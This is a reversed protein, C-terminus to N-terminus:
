FVSCGMRCRRPLVFGPLVFSRSWYAFVATTGTATEANSFELVQLDGFGERRKPLANTQECAAIRDVKFAVLKQRIAENVITNKTIVLSGSSNFVDEAIEYGDPCELTSLIHKEMCITGGYNTFNNERQGSTDATKQNERRYCLSHENV